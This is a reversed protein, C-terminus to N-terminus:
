SRGAPARLVLWYTHVQRVHLVRRWKPDVLSGRQPSVRIVLDCPEFGLLRAAQILELHQWQYRGSHIQDAIKALVIGGPVLVRRAEALFPAFCGAVNEGVLDEAGLGYRDRWSITAHAAAAVSGVADASTDTLHPPDFVLVDWAASWEAPLARFDGVTDVYGELQLAPDRDFRHPTFPLGRWMVGRNHTVDLIRPAEVAHIGLLTLLAEQDSDVVSVPRPLPATARENQRREGVLRLVGSTTLEERQARTAAIYRDFEEAPLAALQQWRHAQMRSIGLQELTPPTVGRDRSTVPDGGPNKPMVALLEGLRREIRLRAETLDNQAHLKAERDTVQGAIYEELARTKLRLETLDAVSTTQAITHRGNDLLVRALGVPDPMDHLGASPGRGVLVALPPTSM